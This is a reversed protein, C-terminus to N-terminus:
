EEIAEQQAKAEDEKKNQETRDVFVPRPIKLSKVKDSTEWGEVGVTQQEYEEIIETCKDWIDIFLDAYDDDEKVMAFTVINSIRLVTSPLSIIYYYDPLRWSQVFDGREGMRDSGDQVLSSLRPM